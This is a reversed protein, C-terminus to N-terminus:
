KGHEPVENGGKSVASPSLNYREQMLKAVRFLEALNEETPSEAIVELEVEYERVIGGTVLNEAILHDLSAELVADGSLKFEVRYRFDTVVLYPKLQSRDLDPHNSQMFTVAEHSITPDVIIQMADSTPLDICLDESDKDWIKCDGVERRFWVAGQRIPTSKYQIREWDKDWASNLLISFGRSSARPSSTSRTRHRLSHSAKALSGLESDYYFDVFKRPIGRWRVALQYGFINGGDPMDTIIREFANRSASWKAEVEMEEWGPPFEAASTLATLTVALIGAVIICKYQKM